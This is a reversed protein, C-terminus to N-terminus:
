MSKRNNEQIKMLVKAIGYWRDIKDIAEKYRPDHKEIPYLENLFLISHMPEHIDEVVIRLKLVKIRENSSKNGSLGGIIAGIGGGILGGVAAGGIVGGKSTRTVTEGDKNVEVEVLMETDLIYIDYTLLKEKKYLFAIKDETKNLAIGNKCDQSLFHQKPVFDNQSLVSLFEKALHIKEKKDKQNYDVFALVLSTAGLIGLIWFMAESEKNVLIALPSLIFFGVLYLKYNAM